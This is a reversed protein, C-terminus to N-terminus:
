ATLFAQMEAITGGPNQEPFFHGGTISRGTVSNAAWDKWVGLPGGWQTYWQDVGGGQGWLVLVPCAIRRGAERDHRDRADDITAAARYEECIAHIARPDRLAEVYADRVDASFTEPTSGWGDLADDVVAEPDAAVLREPLPYPQSLLSWPWYTMAHRVNTRDLVDV